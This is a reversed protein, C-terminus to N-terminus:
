ALRAKPTVGGPYRYTHGDGRSCWARHCAGCRGNTCHGPDFPCGCVNCRQAERCDPCGGPHPFDGAERAATLAASLLAADEADTIAGLAHGHQCGGEIAGRLNGEADFGARLQHADGAPCLPCFFVVQLTVPSIPWRRM